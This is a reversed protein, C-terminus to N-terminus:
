EYEGNRINKKIEQRSPIRKSDMVHGPRLTGKGIWNMDNLIKQQKKPIKKKEHEMLKTISM